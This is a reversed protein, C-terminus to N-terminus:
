MASICNGFSTTVANTGELTATWDSANTGPFSVYLTEGHRFQEIFRVLQPRAIEFELGATQDGFHMGTATGTWQANEDIQMVVRQKAGNDISWKPSGLQVTFTNDGKYYKLGFYRNDPWSTSVGCVRTGDTSTGGFAQWAGARAFVTTDAQATGAALWVGAIVIGSILRGRM